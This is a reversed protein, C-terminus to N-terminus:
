NVIEDFTILREWRVPITQSWITSQTDLSHVTLSLAAASGETTNSECLLVAPGQNTELLQPKRVPIRNLAFTSDIDGSKPDFQLLTNGVAMVVQSKDNKPFMPEYPALKGCNNSLTTTADIFWSGGGARGPTPQYHFFTSPRYWRSMHPTPRIARALAQGILEPAIAHHWLTAGIAGSIGRLYCSAPDKESEDRAFCAIFDPVSDGDIDTVLPNGIVCGNRRSPQDKNEAGENINWWLLEGDAGSFLMMMPYSKCSVLLDSTGDGDVDLKDDFSAVRAITSTFEHRKKLDSNWRFRPLRLTARNTISNLQENETLNNSWVVESSAGDRLTIEGQDFIVFDTKGDHNWPEWDGDMKFPPFVNRDRMHTKLIAEKGAECRLNYFDDLEGTSSLKLEYDGKPIKIPQQTPLTFSPVVKTGDTRLINAVVPTSLQRTSKFMLRSERSECYGQVAVYGIAIAMVATAAAISATSVMRQNRTTWRRLNEAWSPRRSHIPRGDIYARLDAVLQEASEYRHHAEKSICRMIITELDRPLGPRITRPAAPDDNIIKGLAVHPTVADFLNQGTAFEYLTAGLSYIDTRHDVPRSMSSAQEPSMYRPTGLIAGTMSLEVDDLRKALGFDTLWIRGEGDRILNSPKVDRHIIGHTHAYALAEAAQLGWEAVDLPDFPREAAQQLDAL